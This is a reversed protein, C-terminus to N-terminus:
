YIVSCKNCFYNKTRLEQPQISTAVTYDSLHETIDHMIHITSLIDCLLSVLAEVEGSSQPSTVQPVIM